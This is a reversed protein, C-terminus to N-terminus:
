KVAAAKGADQPAVKPAYKGPHLRRDWAPYRAIDREAARRFEPDRLRVVFRKEFMARDRGSLWPEAEDYTIEHDVVLVPRSRIKMALTPLPDLFPQPMAAVFAKPARPVTSFAGTVARAWFEGRKADRAPGDAGASTLEVLRANGSEVFAESRDTQARMVLIDNTAIVDFTPLRVRMASGKAALKLWGAPLVLTPPSAKTAPVLFLSGAGSLQARAGNAFEIQVQSREVGAVIDGEEARAGAVLKYWTAGRLLQAGGQALTVIGAENAALAVGPTFLCLLLYARWRTM